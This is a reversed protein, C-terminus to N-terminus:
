VGDNYTSNSKPTLPSVIVVLAQGSQDENENVRMREETFRRVLYKKSDM